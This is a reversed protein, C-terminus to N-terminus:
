GEKGNVSSMAATVGQSQKRQSDPHWSSSGMFFHPAPMLLVSWCVPCRLLHLSWNPKTSWLRCTALPLSWSHVKGMMTKLPPKGVPKWSAKYYQAVVKHLGRFRKKKGQFCVKCNVSHFNISPKFALVQVRDLPPPSHTLIITPGFTWLAWSQKRESTLCNLSNNREAAKKPCSRPTTVDEVHLFHLYYLKLM